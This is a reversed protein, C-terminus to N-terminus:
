CDVFVNLVCEVIIVRIFANILLNDFNNIDLKLDCIKMFYNFGPHGGNLLEWIDALRVKKLVFLFV